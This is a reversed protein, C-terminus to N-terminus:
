GFVDAAVRDIFKVYRDRYVKNLYGLSFCEKQEVSSCQSSFGAYDLGLGNEANSISQLTMASLLINHGFPNPQGGQGQVLFISLM